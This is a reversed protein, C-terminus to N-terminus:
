LFFAGGSQPLNDGASSGDYDRRYCCGRDPQARRFIIGPERASDAAAFGNVGFGQECMEVRNAVARGVDDFHGSLVGEATANEVDVRRFGLARHTDLEEAILDIRDALEIGCRLTRGTRHIFSQEQRQCLSRDVLLKETCNM